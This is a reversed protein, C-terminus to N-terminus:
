KLLESITLLKKTNGPHSRSKMSYKGPSSFLIYKPPINQIYTLDEQHIVYKIKICTDRKVLQGISFSSKYFDVVIVSNSNIQTKLNLISKMFDPTDSNAACISLITIYEQIITGKIPLIYGEKDRQSIKIQLRDQHINPYQQYRSAKQECISLISEEM